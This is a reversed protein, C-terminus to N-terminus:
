YIKSRKELSRANRMDRGFRRVGLSIDLPYPFNYGISMLNTLVLHYEQSRLVHSWPINKKFFFYYVRDRASSYVIIIYIQQLCQVHPLTAINSGFNLEHKRGINHNSVGRQSRLLRIQLYYRASITITVEISAEVTAM